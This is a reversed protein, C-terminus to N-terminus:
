TRFFFTGSRVTYHRMLVVAIFVEIRLLRRYTISIDRFSDTGDHTLCQMHSVDCRLVHIENCM